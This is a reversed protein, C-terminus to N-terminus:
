QRSSSSSYQEAPFNQVPAVASELMAMRNVAAAYTRNGAAAAAAAAAVANSMTVNCCWTTTSACQQSCYAPAAHLETLMHQKEAV